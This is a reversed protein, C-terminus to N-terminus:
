AARKEVLADIISRKWFLKKNKIVAHPEGKDTPTWRSKVMKQFGQEKLMRNVAVAAMGGLVRGLGTPSFDFERAKSIQLAQMCDFGYKSKVAANAQLRARDDDLGLDKGMMIHAKLARAIFMPTVNSM